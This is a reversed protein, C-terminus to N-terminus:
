EFEMCELCSKIEYFVVSKLNLNQTPKEILCVEIINIKPMTEPGCVNYLPDPDMDSDLEM